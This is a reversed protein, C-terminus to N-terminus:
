IVKSKFTFSWVAVGCPSGAVAANPLARPGPWGSSKRGILVGDGGKAREKVGDKRRSVVRGHGARSVEDPFRVECEPRRGPGRM